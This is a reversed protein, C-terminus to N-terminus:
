VEYVLNTLWNLKAIIAAHVFIFRDAFVRKFKEQNRRPNRQNNM